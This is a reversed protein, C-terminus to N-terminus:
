LDNRAAPQKDILNALLRMASDIEDAPVVAYNLRIYNKYRGTPSCIQGPTITIGKSVADRYLKLGDIDEPLRVWSLFGGQPRSVETSEPFHRKVANILAQQKKMYYPVITRLHRDLKRTSLFRALAFQPHCPSCLTSIFKLSRANQAYRGAIIWGIRLDPSLVKSISGCLIVRGERDYSHITGPRRGTFGLLAFVDDEILPIDYASILELIKRKKREPCLYGSPNSFAPNMIIGKVPWTQLIAELQEMDMGDVPSVPIEVAKLGLVELAQLVGYYGPSEVLIIDGPDAICRLAITLAEQCGSTIVIEDPDISTGTDMLRRALQRRLPLYGIPDEEYNPIKNAHRKYEQHLQRVGQGSVDPIASGLQILDKRAASRMVSVATELVTVKAPVPTFSAAKPQPMTQVTKVYYGSRKKAFILNQDELAVYAQQVTGISVKLDQALQRISPLRDGPLLAKNSIQSVIMQRIKEYLYDTM